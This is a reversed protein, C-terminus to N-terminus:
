KINKLAEKGKEFKNEAEKLSNKREDSLPKPVNDRYLELGERYLDYADMMSKYHDLNESPVKPGLDNKLYNIIELSNDILKNLREKASESGNYTEVQDSIEDMSNNFKQNQVVVEKTYESTTIKSPQNLSCGSSFLIFIFLSFFACIYRIKMYEM